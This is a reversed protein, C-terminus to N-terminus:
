DVEGAARRAAREFPNRRYGFPIALLFYLPIFLPGWYRYQRVHHLEHTLLTGTAPEGALIVLGVTMASRDFRSM